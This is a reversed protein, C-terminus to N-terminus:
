PIAAPEAVFAIWRGDPSVALRTLNRVGAAALDAVVTWGDSSAPDLRLLRTGAALMLDGDPTHAFFDQGGPATGLTRVTYRDREPGSDLLRMERLLLGGPARQVFTVGRTGAVPQLGRGIDSAVVSAEGNRVDAIRLTAPSGLVFLALTSDDMWVHYGVPRIRELLLTPAGGDMPFRWLRQTSDREVRVASFSKGDGMPTPSYESEPTATVRTVAGTALEYRYVDAQADERISTYLLASGDRLFAPQNDYGPRSTTNRPTGVVLVGDRRSLPAVFVDTGPPAVQGRVEVPFALLMLLM